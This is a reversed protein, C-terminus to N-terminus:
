RYVCERFWGVKSREPELDFFGNAGDVWREVAQILQSCAVDSLKGGDDMTGSSPLVVLVM